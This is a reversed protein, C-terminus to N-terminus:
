VVNLKFKVPNKLYFKPLWYCTLCLSYFPRLIAGLPSIKTAFAFDKNVFAGLVPAIELGSSNAYMCSFYTRNQGRRM